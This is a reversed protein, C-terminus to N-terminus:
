LPARGEVLLPTQQFILSGEGDAVGTQDQKRYFGKKPERTSEWGLGSEVGCGHLETLDPGARRGCQGSMSKSQGPWVRQSEELPGFERMERMGSM